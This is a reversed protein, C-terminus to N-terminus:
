SKCIVEATTALPCVAKRELPSDPVDNDTSVVVLGDTVPHERVNPQESHRALFNSTLAPM